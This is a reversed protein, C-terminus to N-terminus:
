DKKGIEFIFEWKWIKVILEYYLFLRQEYVWNMAHTHITFFPLEVWLRFHLWHPIKIIKM